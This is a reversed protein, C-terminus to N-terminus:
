IITPRRPQFEKLHVQLFDISFNGLLGGVFVDDLATVTRICTQAFYGTSANSGPSLLAEIFTDADLAPDKAVRM